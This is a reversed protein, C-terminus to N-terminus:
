PTAMKELQAALQDARAQLNQLEAGIIELAQAPSGAQMPQTEDRVYELNLGYRAFQSRYKEFFKYSFEKTGIWRAITAQSVLLADAAQQQIPFALELLIRLREGESM